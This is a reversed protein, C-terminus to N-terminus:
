TVDVVYDFIKFGFELGEVEASDAIEPFTVLRAMTGGVREGLKKNTKWIPFPEKRDKLSFLFAKVPSTRQITITANGLSNNTESVVVDGQAGVSTTFLDEEKEFSCMDEDLGTIYVGDITIVNDKADYRGVNM